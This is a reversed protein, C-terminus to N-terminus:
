QSFRRIRAFTEGCNFGICFNFAPITSHLIYFVEREGKVDRLAAPHSSISTTASAM